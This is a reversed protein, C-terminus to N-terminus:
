GGPRGGPTDPSPAAGATPEGGRSAPMETSPTQAPAPRAAPGHMAAEPLERLPPAPPLGTVDLIEKEDLTERQLLAEVLADLQRRHERLLRTALAYSEDIIRQVEADIREATREGFPKPGAFGGGGGLYGNDRPALQVMGLEESMGWRTVMNRALQTAQEIDNEAGTTKTGYVVDEAARGGLMGVIRARLYAEPYNYRDTQPRQYTVGLAQGRPVITVRQVPDAGPMVLGLIAHGSEHYAIRRRDEPSLLLPREPGLVIKELADIFDKQRVDDQGRRAALLAAENVLNRLDAGSLGPTTGALEALDVDAGTPVKRTHVRLIAERGKRDPLNVVVRRDFRGPRLLARDLVDPQNTAALVIVGERGSFGDMETLIQNLTQEQESSGGIAVTGRARGISDIEDIFIIAPANDRAQKFLDRVRAAGVGVIMEVFEAASMSFFPVGAEGAVARALLTKGTGPSGVLLVGKPASGGLRTYKEPAKLFDVIEVLENEAEDIGAVDEFTVKEAGAEQDYRRAKSKGIGMLGGGLGGGQAARRYLWVYFGILLIAPGFGFLLTSWASGSQIPVASIEVDHEILFNELDPGVFAPLTTTFTSATRPTTPPAPARLARPRGVPESAGPAPWTVPAHFRGEISAGQSYISQVNGRGAEEKFTTYPITLPDGASPFLFRVLLYNALLIAVFTWWAQRPPITPPLVKGDPGRAPVGPTRRPTGAPSSKGFLRDKWSM